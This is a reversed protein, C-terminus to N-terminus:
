FEKTLTETAREDRDPGGALYARRHCIRYRLHTVDRAELQAQEPIFADLSMSMSMYLVLRGM